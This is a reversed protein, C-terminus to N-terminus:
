RKTIQHIFQTLLAGGLMGWLWGHDSKKCEGYDDQCVLVLERQMEYFRFDEEPMLVGFYPSVQGKELVIIKDSRASTPGTLLSLCLFM